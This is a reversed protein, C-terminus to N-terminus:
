TFLSEDINVQFNSVVGNRITKIYSSYEQVSNVFFDLDDSYRHGLYFRGLATGGTLYFPLNLATCWNLFRDQLQYLKKYDEDSSNM